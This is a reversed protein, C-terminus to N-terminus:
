FCLCVYSRSFNGNGTAPVYYLCVLDNMLVSKSYSASFRPVVPSLEFWMCLVRTFVHVRCVHVRLVFSSSRLCPEDFRHLLRGM